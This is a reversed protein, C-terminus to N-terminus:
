NPGQLSIIGCDQHAIVVQIQRTDEHRRPTNNQKKSLIPKCHNKAQLVLSPVAGYMVFLRPATKEAWISPNLNWCIGFLAPRQFEPEEKACVHLKCCFGWHLPLKELPFGGPSCGMSFCRSTSSALVHLLPEHELENTWFSPAPSCWM